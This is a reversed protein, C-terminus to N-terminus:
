RIMRRCLDDMAYSYCCTCGYWKICKNIFIQTMYYTMNVKEMILRLKQYVYIELDDEKLHEQDMYQIQLIIIVVYHDSRSLSRWTSELIMIVRNQDKWILPSRYVDGNKM